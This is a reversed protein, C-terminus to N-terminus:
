WPTKPLRPKLSATLAYDKVIDECYQPYQQHLRQARIERMKKTFPAISLEQMQARVFQLTLLTFSATGLVPEMWNWTWSGVELMTEFDEPEPVQTSVYKENFWEATHRHFVMPICGIGSILAIYM